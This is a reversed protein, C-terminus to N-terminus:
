RSQSRIVSIAATAWGRVEATVGMADWEAPGYWELDAAGAEAVLSDPQGDLPQAVYILDIHQHGPGIDELQIGLPQVLRAPEDPAVTHGSPLALPGDVLRVRVGSEELTERLAAEDPLEGPDIHGGPPLWMGLKKHRHLLVRDAHV